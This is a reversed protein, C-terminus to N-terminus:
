GERVSARRIMKMRPGRAMAEEPRTKVDRDPECRTRSTDSEIRFTKFEVRSRMKVMAMKM